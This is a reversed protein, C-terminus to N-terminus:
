PRAEPDRTSTTGVTLSGKLARLEELIRDSQEKAERNGRVQDHISALLMLAAGGLILSVPASWDSRGFLGAIGAIMAVLGGLYCLAHALSIM